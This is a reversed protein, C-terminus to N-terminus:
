PKKGSETCEGFGKIKHVHPLFGDVPKRTLLWLVFRDFGGWAIGNSYVQISFETILTKRKKSM